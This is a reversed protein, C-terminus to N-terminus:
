QFFTRIDSQKLKVSIEDEVIGGIRNLSRQIEEGKESFLMYECHVLNKNEVTVVKNNNKNKSNGYM